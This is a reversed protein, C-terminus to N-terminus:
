SLTYLIFAVIFKFVNFTHDLKKGSRHIETNDDNVEQYARLLASQTVLPDLTTPFKSQRGRRSSGGWNSFTRAVLSSSFYFFFLM